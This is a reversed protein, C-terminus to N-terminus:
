SRGVPSLTQPDPLRGRGRQGKPAASTQWTGGPGSPLFSPYMRCSASRPQTPRSLTKSCSCSRSCARSMQSGTWPALRATPAPALTLGPDGPSRTLCLSLGRPPLVVPTCGASLDAWGCYGLRPTAALRAWWGRGRLRPIHFRAIPPPPLAPPDEDPGARLRRGVAARAAVRATPGLAETERAAAVEGDLSGAGSQSLAGAGHLRPGWLGGSRRGFDLGRAGGSGLWRRQGQATGSGGWTCRGLTSRNDQDRGRGM